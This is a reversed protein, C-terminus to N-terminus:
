NREGVLLKEGDGFGTRTEKHLWDWKWWVPEESVRFRGEEGGSAEWGLRGGLNRILELHRGM